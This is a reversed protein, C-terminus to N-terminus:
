TERIKLQSQSSTVYKQSYDWLVSPQPPPEAPLATTSEESIETIGLAQILHSVVVQVGAGPSLPSQGEEPLQMCTLYMFECLCLHTYLSVCLYWLILM